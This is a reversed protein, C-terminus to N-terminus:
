WKISDATNKMCVLTHKHKNGCSDANAVAEHFAKDYRLDDLNDMIYPCIDYPCKKFHLCYVCAVDAYKYKFKAM